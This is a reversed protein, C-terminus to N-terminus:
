LKGVQLDEVEDSKASRTETNQAMEEKCWQFKTTEAAAEQEMRSM